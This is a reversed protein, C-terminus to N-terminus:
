DSGGDTALALGALAFRVLHTADDRTPPEPQTLSRQLWGMALTYLTDADRQPHGPWGARAAKELRERLPGILRAESAAVEDPFLESLRARSCAFPRTAAAAEAQLGQELIGELWHRVQEAPDEARDLRHDLYSGLMRVGEDLVCLLLEDKSEFHRYFAQNSLGARRLIESVRPELAGTERILELSAEVLRRVTDDHRAARSAGARRASRRAWRGLAAPAAEPADSTNSKM